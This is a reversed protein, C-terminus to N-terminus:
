PGKLILPLHISLRQYEFAGIDCLASGNNDGDVPRMCGRQDTAPCNNPANYIVADIAPSGALLAFTWTPGGNNALPGLQPDTSSMSGNSTGWGCTTGDDINNGGNTIAGSCNGGATSNAIITNYVTATNNNHIGGGSNAASNGSFTSNTITLTGRNGIGGGSGATASNGSFTSNTVLMTGQANDIGGGGTASNGSFTSNTITVTGGSRIYIGGGGRIAHNDSFTSNSVTLAANNYNYIAGGGLGTVTTTSNNGSFTCNIVNLMGSNYVGGGTPVSGNALTLNQLNLTAGTDVTFVRVANNGSITVSQGTGDITLAGGAATINPLQSGLVITGSVSFTITDRGYGTATCDNYDANNNAATIAERLTCLGDGSTMNDLLTNVTLSAARAVPAAPVLM